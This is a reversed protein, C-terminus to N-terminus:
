RITVFDNHNLLVHILSERARQRPDPSPPVSANDGAAFASLKAPESLRTAQDKLFTECTGREEDTPPRCLVQEFAATVFSDGSSKALEGALTRAEAWSLSSNALALAQQPMVSPQRRYCETPSAADFLRLFTMQKEHAHRFYVSRRPVTLGKDHDLEPGGTTLDLKGAVYFLADRVAEAEMRRVPARWLYRNDPDISRNADSPGADGSQMRYTASTVILRHISKMRWHSDMLEVALWDLLAPNTPPKGNLGFDFVTPVLGDGFHRMWLHNIAVRAALPNQRDTIWKALALRRGTSTKPYVPTLTTYDTVPQKAKEKAEALKKRLEALKKEAEDKKAPPTREAALVDAEARL